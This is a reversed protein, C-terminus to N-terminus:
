FFTFRALANVRQQTGTDDAGPGIQSDFVKRQGFAYEFGLDFNKVPTFFSNV